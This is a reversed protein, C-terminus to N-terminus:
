LTLSGNQDAAVSDDAKLPALAAVAVAAASSISIIPVDDDNNTISNGPKADVSTVSARVEPADNAVSHISSISSNASIAINDVGPKSPERGDTAVTEEAVTPVRAIPRLPMSMTGSASSMTPTEQSKSRNRNVHDNSDAALQSMSIPTPERWPVSIASTARQSHIYPAGLPSLQSSFSPMHNLASPSDPQPPMSPTRTFLTA